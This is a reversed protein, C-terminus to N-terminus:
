HTTAAPELGKRAYGVRRLIPCLEQRVDRKTPEAFGRIYRRRTKEKRRILRSKHRPDIQFNIPPPRHLDILIYSILRLPFLRHGEVAQPTPM